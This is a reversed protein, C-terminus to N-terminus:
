TYHFTWLFKQVLSFHSQSEAPLIKPVPGNPTPRTAQCSVIHPWFKKCMCFHHGSLPPSTPLMVRPLPHVGRVRPILPACWRASTLLSLKVVQEERPNGGPNCSIGPFIKKAAKGVRVFEFPLLQSNGPGHQPNRPNMSAIFVVMDHALLGSIYPSAVQWNGTGVVWTRSQKHFSSPEGLRGINGLLHVAGCVRGALRFLKRKRRWPCLPEQARPKAQPTGIASGHSAESVPIPVLNIMM